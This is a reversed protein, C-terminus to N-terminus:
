GDSNLGSIWFNKLELARVEAGMKIQHVDNIQSTFTGGIATTISQYRRYFDDDSIQWRITDGEADVQPFAGAYEYNSTGDFAYLFRRNIYKLLRTFILFLCKCSQTPTYVWCLILNILDYKCLFM